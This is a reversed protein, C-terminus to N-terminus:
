KKEVIDGKLSSALALLEDKEKQPVKLKDLTAVLHGVGINWDEETIGLGAHTTKMDRGTYICPGGTGACLQEILHQRIRQKSDTGFGSFFRAMKPDQALRGIFEDAVAAIADYGGLRQYLSAKADHALLPLTFLFLLFAATLRLRVRM